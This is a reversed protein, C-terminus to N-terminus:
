WVIEYMLHISFNKDYLKWILELFSSFSSKQFSHKDYYEWSVQIALVKWLFCSYGTLTCTDCNIGVVTKSFYFFFCNHKEILHRKKGDLTIFLELRFFLKPMSSLWLLYALWFVTKSSFQSSLCFFQLFLILFNNVNKDFNQASM